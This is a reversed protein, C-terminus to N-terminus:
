RRSGRLEVNLVTVGNKQVIVKRRQTRYGSCEIEVQYSGPALELVFRGDKDASVSSGAPLLRVQAPLPAGDFSRVFPSYAHGTATTDRVKPLLAFLPGPNGQRPGVTGYRSEIRAPRIM